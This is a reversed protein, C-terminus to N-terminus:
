KLAEFGVFRRGEQRASEHSLEDLLKATESRRNGLNTSQQLAEIAGDIDGL